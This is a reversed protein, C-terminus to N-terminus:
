NKMGTLTIGEIFHRQAIFFLAVVPLIMMTSAAMLMGFDGGHETRFGFLGLALPYLRQDNIYILPGMFENWTGMFTFIAVAALAPRILPLIIRWYIGFFGCGDIRAAEELETPITKMFQRLLFVFFPTGLFARIWLPKLTNYWGLQKFILFSPIMTVQAPLMMTGLLVVFLVDRGPWRLRAFAYAVMSCSIIQGLVTLVVLYVSNAIYRGWHDSAIWADRYNQTYKLWTAALWSSREITLTMRFQDPEDYVHSQDPAPVLHWIGLEREDRDDRHKLKFALEQWRFRGLYLTDEAVYRLGRLELTVHLRHWSRDQRIPVTVSLLEDAPVPLPMEAAMAAEDNEGFMYEVVLPLSRDSEIGTPARGVSIGGTQLSHWRDLCTGGDRAVAYERRNVDTVIPDRLAVCRFVAAWVDEVRGRDVRRSLEDAVDQDSRAWTGESIGDSITHWLGRTLTSRLTAEDFGAARAQGLITRGREWLAQEIRPWLQRWRDSEVPSPREVTEYLECSLYPSKAVAGPTAPVWKPPYVYMEEPYKFSTVTLWVFPFAFIVCGVVLMGHTAVRRCVSVPLGTGAALSVALVIGFVYILLGLGQDFRGFEVAIGAVALVALEFFLALTPLVRKM